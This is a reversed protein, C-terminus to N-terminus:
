TRRVPGFPNDTHEGPAPVRAPRSNHERVIPSGVTKLRGGGTSYVDRLMHRATTQESQLAESALRVPAAPIRRATLYTAVWEKKRTRLWKNVAPEIVATFMQARGERSSLAPDHALDPREIADCFAQWQQDPGVAICVWGDAAEFYGFPARERTSGRRYRMERGTASSLWLAAENYALMCDYMALDIVVGAGTRDRERVAALVGIAAYLGAVLDAAPPGVAAAPDGEVPVSSLVGTMAEAVLNFAPWDRYPSPSQGFGTISCYILNGNVELLSEASFGLRQMTGARFNEVVVDADAVLTRFSERGAECRLDVAVSRKGRNLGMFYASVTGEEGDPVQPPMQRTSEGGPPEIKVVTAGLDALIM